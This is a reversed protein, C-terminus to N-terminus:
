RATGAQQTAPVGPLQCHFFWDRELKAKALARRLGQGSFEGVFGTSLDQPRYSWRRTVPNRIIFFDPFERTVSAIFDLYSSRM